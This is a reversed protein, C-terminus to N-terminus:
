RRPPLSALTAQEHDFVLMCTYDTGSANRKYANLTLALEETSMPFAVTCRRLVAALPVRDDIHHKSQFLQQSAAPHRQTAIFPLAFPTEEPRYLRLFRGFPRSEGGGGVGRESWLSVVEAVRPVEEGPGPAIEVHSGVHINAGKLEFAAYYTRADTDPLGTPPDQPEGVWSFGPAITNPLVAPPADEEERGGNLTGNRRRGKKWNGFTATTTAEKVQRHQEPQLAGAGFMDRSPKELVEEEEKDDDQLANKAPGPTPGAFSRRKKGLFDGPLSGQHLANVAWDYPHCPV